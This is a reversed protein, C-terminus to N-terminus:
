CLLKVLFDNGASPLKEINQVALMMKKGLVESKRLLEKTERRHQLNERKMAMIRKIHNRRLIKAKQKNIKQVKVNAKM